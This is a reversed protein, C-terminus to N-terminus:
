KSTQLKEILLNFNHELIAAKKYLDRMLESYNAKYSGAEGVMECKGEMLIQYSSYSTPVTSSSQEKTDEEIDELARKKIPNM